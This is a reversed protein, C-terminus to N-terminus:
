VGLFRHALDPTLKAPTGHWVDRGRELVTCRDAVTALEKLSKDVILISQGRAKLARIAAWIEQRVVPALGETAEDLILLRPNTMLARGIVLMQQEGGSLTEAKQDAREALRPFLEAVKDFTWEGKRAAAMLNERVTLGRFARRGEPVLGLGLRAAKHSPLRGLDHGAFAIRGSRAGLMRTICAITTTKGMGNRGMLALAEGEELKLSVGFLAQVQGYAATLEEVELLASM